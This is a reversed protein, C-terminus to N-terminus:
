SKLRKLPPPYKNTSGRPTSTLVGGPPVLLNGHKRKNKILSNPALTKRVGESSPTPIEKGKESKVTDSSGGLSRVELLDLDKPIESSSIPIEVVQPIGDPDDPITTNIIPDGRWGELDKAPGDFPLLDYDYEEANSTINDESNSTNPTIQSLGGPIFSNWLCDHRTM